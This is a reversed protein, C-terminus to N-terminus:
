TDAEELELQLESVQEQLRQIFQMKRSIAMAQDFKGAQYNGVFEDALM